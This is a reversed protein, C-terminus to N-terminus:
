PPATVKFRLSNSDDNIIFRGVLHHHTDQSCARNLQPDTRTGRAGFRINPVAVRRTQADLVLSWLPGKSGRAPESAALASLKHDSHGEVSSHYARCCAAKFPVESILFHDVEVAM